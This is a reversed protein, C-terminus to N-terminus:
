GFSLRGLPRRALTGCARRGRGPARDIELPGSQDGKGLGQAVAQGLREGGGDVHDGRGPAPDDDAAHALAAVDAALDGRVRAEVPVGAKKTCGASALWPSRPMIVCSSTIM